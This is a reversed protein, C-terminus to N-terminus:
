RAKLRGYLAIERDAHDSSASLMRCRVGARLLWLCLHWYRFQVDSANAAEEQGAAVRHDKM